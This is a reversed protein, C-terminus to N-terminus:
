SVTLTDFASDNLRYVLEAFQLSFAEAQRLAYVEAAQVNASTNRVRALGYRSDLGLITNAPVPGGSAADDVIFVKVDGILSNVVTAMSEVRPLTLDIATLSPRGARGEIKLYTDLDCVVWDIKRYKRNRFLWKLWAKQTITGAVAAPDLGVTTANYGLSSLSGTNIDQDGAFVDSLYSNVWSDREVSLYRQVSLGVMDLTSVRLAEQSFEMGLAYTPIKRIKDSTTFALMSTPPALQARRAARQSQPGGAGTMNVIPQEFTDKDVSIEQAILKDFQDADTNYDKVLSSEMYAIIASPFLTRSQQGTPNGVGETNSAALFNAQGDMIDAMTPLNMGYNRRTAGDPVVLGSSALMQDFTTGFKAVDTPHERNIFAPVSLNAKAALSYIQPPVEFDQLAGTADFYKAM